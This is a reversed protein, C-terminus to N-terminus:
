KQKFVCTYLGIWNQITNVKLIDKEELEEAEVYKLLEDHMTQANMRDQRRQNELLFFQELMAKVNKKIRIGSGKIGLKQNDKLIW